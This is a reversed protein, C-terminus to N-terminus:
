RTPSDCVLSTKTASNGSFGEHLIYSENFINKLTCLSLFSYSAGLCLLRFRIAYPIEVSENCNLISESSVQMANMDCFNGKSLSSISPSESESARDLLGKLRWASPCKLQLHINSKSFRAFRHRGQTWRM